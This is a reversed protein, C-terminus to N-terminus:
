TIWGQIEESLDIDPGFDIGSTSANESCNVGVSGAVCEVIYPKTDTHDKAKAPVWLAILVDNEIVYGYYLKGHFTKNSQTGFYNFFSWQGFNKQPNARSDTYESHGGEYDLRFVKTRATFTATYKKQIDLSTFDHSNGGNQCGIIYNGSNERSYIQFDYNSGTNYAASYGIITEYGAPTVGQKFVVKTIYDDSSKFQSCGILNLENISYNTTDIYEVPTLYPPFVLTQSVGGGLDVDFTGSGGGQNYVSAQNYISPKNEIM